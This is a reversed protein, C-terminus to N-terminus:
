GERDDVTSVRSNERYTQGWGRHRPGVPPPDNANTGHRVILCFASRFEDTFPVYRVQFSERTCILEDGMSIEFSGSKLNLAEAIVDGVISSGFSDIEM